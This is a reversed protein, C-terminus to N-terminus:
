KKLYGVILTQRTKMKNQIHFSDLLSRKARRIAKGPVTHRVDAVYMEVEKFAISIAAASQSQRRVMSVAEADSLKEGIDIHDEKQSVFANEINEFVEDVIAKTVTDTSEVCM